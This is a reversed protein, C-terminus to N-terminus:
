EFYKLIANASKNYNKHHKIENISEPENKLLYELKWLNNTDLDQRELLLGGFRECDKNYTFTDTDIISEFIEMVDENTINVNDAFSGYRFGFMRPGFMNDMPLTYELIKIALERPLYPNESLCAINLNNNPETTLKHFLEYYMSEEEFAFFRILSGYFPMAIEAKASSKEIFFNLGAECYKDIISQPLKIDTARALSKLAVSFGPDSLLPHPNLIYEIFKISIEKNNLLNKIDIKLWVDEYVEGCCPSSTHINMLRDFYTMLINELIPDNTKFDIKIEGLIQNPKYNKHSIIKKLISTDNEYELLYYRLVWAPVNLLLFQDLNKKNRLFGPNNRTLHILHEGKINILNLINDISQKNTDDTEFVLSDIAEVGLNNYSIVHKLSIMMSKNKIIEKCLYTYTESSDFGIEMIYEIAKQYKEKLAIPHPPQLQFNNDDVEFDNFLKKYEKESKGCNEIIYTAVEQNMKGIGEKKLLNILISNLKKSKFETQLIKLVLQSSIENKKILNTLGASLRQEKIAITAKTEDNGILEIFKNIANTISYKNNLQGSM